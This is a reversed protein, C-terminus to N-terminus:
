LPPNGLRNLALATLPNISWALKLHCQSAGHSSVPRRRLLIFGKSKKRTEIVYHGLGGAQDLGVRNSGVNPSVFLCM